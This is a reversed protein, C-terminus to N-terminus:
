QWRGVPTYARVREGTHADVYSNYSRMIISYVLNQRNVREGEEMTKWFIELRPTSVQFDGREVDPYRELYEDWATELAEEPTVKPMPNMDLFQPINIQLKANYIYKGGVERMGRTIISTIVEGKYVPVDGYFYSYTVDDFQEQTVGRRLTDSPVGCVEAALDRLYYHVDSLDKRSLIKQDLTIKGSLTNPTFFDRFDDVSRKAIWREGTEEKLYAFLEESSNFPTAMKLDAALPASFAALLLSFTILAQIM